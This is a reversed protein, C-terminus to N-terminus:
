SMFIAKPELFEKLGYLGWERGIGSQKVGGFPAALQIRAQNIHVHGARIKHAVQRAEEKTPGFVHASLGYPTQNAVNIAEDVSDYPLICLVPGFIEEQAIRMSPTVESFLTPSIYFGKQLHAPRETGGTLLKAGEEQGVTIYYKVREYQRQNAIPGLRTNPDKPDGVVLADCAQVALREVEQLTDKPVLLRTPANCSQGSNQMVSRVAAPIAQSLDAGPLILNPSKGGLELTVRKITPAAESLVSVGARHSGTLSVMDVLEHSSLQPGVVEGEGFVMNFVGKPLGVEHIIEALLQASLPALESPKFVMTCGALLAPAIKCLAQNMPWNWPTILAVVGAPEQRLVYGTHAEEFSFSKAAELAGKIQAMGMPVQAKHALNLPAGMETSIAHALADANKEYAQLLAEIWHLRQEFPEAAFSPFAHHAAQVALEVEQQTAMPVQHLMEETAPNVLPSYSRTCNELHWQGNIYFGKSFPM